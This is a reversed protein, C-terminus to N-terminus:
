RLPLNGNGCYFLTIVQYNGDIIEALARKYESFFGSFDNKLTVVDSEYNINKVIQGRQSSMIGWFVM